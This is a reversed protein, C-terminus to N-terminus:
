KKGKKQRAEAIKAEMEDLPIVGPIVADGIIFVPTGSLGMSSALAASREVEAAIEKSEVDKRARVVDLGIDKATKELLADTIPQRNEMMARHFAFHKGQRHAAVAWLAATKSSPGLIPFNKFVFRLNKDKELLASVNKFGAKCYGCNYDYFEVVTMDGKPNGGTADGPTNYLADANKKLADAQANKLTTRQYEDVSTLILQPNKTIFDRVIAEVEARDTAAFGPATLALFAALLLFRMMTM